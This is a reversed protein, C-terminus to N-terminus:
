EIGSVSIRGFKDCFEYGKGYREDCINVLGGIIVNRDKGLLM